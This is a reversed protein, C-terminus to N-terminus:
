RETTVMCSKASAGKLEKTFQQASLTGTRMLLRRDGDSEEIHDIKICAKLTKVEKARLPANVCHGVDVARRNDPQIFSRPGDLIGRRSRTPRHCHKQIPSDGDKQQNALLKLANILNDCLGLPAAHAEFVKVENANAGLQVVLIRNPARWEYKGGCVACWWSCHMKKRHSGDGHGTSVRRTGDIGVLHLGGVSFSNCHPWVYSPIVGGMGGVPASVRRLFVTSKRLIERVIGVEGIKKELTWKCLKGEKFNEWNGHKMAIYERRMTQPGCDTYASRKVQELVERFRSEQHWQGQTGEQKERSADELIKKVEARKLTSGCEVYLNGM